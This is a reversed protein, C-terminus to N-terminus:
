LEIGQSKLKEYFLEEAIKNKKLREKHEICDKRNRSNVYIEKLIKYDVDFGREQLEAIFFKDIRAMM